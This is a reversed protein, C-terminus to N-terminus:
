EDVKVCLIKPIMERSIITSANVMLGRSVEEDSINEILMPDVGNKTSKKGDLFNISYQVIAVIVSTTTVERTNGGGLVDNL